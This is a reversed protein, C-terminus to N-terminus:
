QVDHLLSSSYSGNRHIWYFVSQSTLFVSQTGWLDKVVNGNASIWILHQVQDRFYIRERLKAKHEQGYTARDQMRYHLNITSINCDLFQAAM